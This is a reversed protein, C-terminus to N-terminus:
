WISATERERVSEWLSGPGHIRELARRGSFEDHSLVRFSVAYALRGDYVGLLPALRLSATKGRELFLRLWGDRGRSRLLM